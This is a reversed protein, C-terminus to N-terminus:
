DQAELEERPRKRTVGRGVATIGLEPLVRTGWMVYGGFGRMTMVPHMRGPITQHPRVRTELISPALIRKDNTLSHQLELLNEKYQNYVVVPRSGGITPLVHPLVSPMHLTSVSIFADFNGRQVIDIVDNIAFARQLRRYYQDRKNSKLEEVAALPLQEFLIRENEPEVFQLWSITKIMRAQEEESYNSYRLAINNAHENEHVVVITGQGRMREMLAYLVVGGTEDSLLYTGGPRVNAYNLILGLTEESLDLMRPLDKEIYYKLLQSSGLYEVTFRRLFKQQKRRLYKQQSFVTKKDFGAHGAVIKEIIQQGINSSAGSRKLESIEDNSLKQIKSGIDLINQNNEASPTFLRMLADKTIDGDGVMADDEDAEASVEFDMALSKIPKVMNDELIEFTLGLPHGLIGDIKFTGFKGLNVVGGAKTEVIKLGGSPLSVLVFQNATIVKTEKMRTHKKILDHTGSM